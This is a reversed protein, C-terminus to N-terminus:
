SRRTITMSSIRNTKVCRAMVHLRQVQLQKYNKLFMPRNKHSLFWIKEEISYINWPM